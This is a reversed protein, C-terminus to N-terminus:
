AARLPLRVSFVSGEGPASQVSISGRHVEVIAKSIAMGLGTGLSATDKAQWYREFAKEVEEATMGIGTDAVQLWLGDESAEGSVRVRGGPPTFKVACRNSGLSTSGHELILTASTM